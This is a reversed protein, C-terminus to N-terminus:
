LQTIAHPNISTYRGYDKQAQVQAAEAVRVNAQAQDLGAQRL